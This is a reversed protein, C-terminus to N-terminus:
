APATPPRLCSRWVRRTRLRTNIPPGSPPAPSVVRM